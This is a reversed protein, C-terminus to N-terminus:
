NKIMRWDPLSCARRRSFIFSFRIKKLILISNIRKREDANVYGLFNRPAAVNLAAVSVM